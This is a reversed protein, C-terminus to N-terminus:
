ASSCLLAPSSIFVLLWSLQGESFLGLTSSQLATAKTQGRVFAQGRIHTNVLYVNVGHRRYLRLSLIWTVCVLRRTKGLIHHPWHAGLQTFGSMTTYALFSYHVAISWTKLTMYISALHLQLSKGSLCVLKLIGSSHLRQCAEGQM